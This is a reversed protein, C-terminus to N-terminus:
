IKTNTCFSISFVFGSFVGSFMFCCYCMARTCILTIFSFDVLVFFFTLKKERAGRPLRVKPANDVCVLWPWLPGLSASLTFLSLVFSLLLCRRCFTLFYQSNKKCSIKTHPSSHSQTKNGRLTFSFSITSLWSSQFPHSPPLKRNCSCWTLQIKM